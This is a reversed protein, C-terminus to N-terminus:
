KAHAKAKEDKTFLYAHKSGSVDKVQLYINWWSLTKVIAYIIIHFLRREM